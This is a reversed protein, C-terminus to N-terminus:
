GTLATRAARVRALDIPASLDGGAHLWTGVIIGDARKGAASRDPRWGSGVWVPCRVASRAASVHEADTEQGTGTGTVIVVDAGAREVLDRAAADIGMPALPVAHKVLVDAAIRVSEAGIRNRELWFERAQGTIVGQDTSMAGAFINVRVFAADCAKAIALAALADNRLVNIGLAIRPAAARVALAVRTMAAITWADVPGAHFPADGYNEVILADVGGEALAAADAM